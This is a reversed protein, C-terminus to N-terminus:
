SVTDELQHRVSVAEGQLSVYMPNNTPLTALNGIGMNLDTLYMMLDNEKDSLDGLDKVLACYHVFSLRDGPLPTKTHHALELDLQHCEAEM